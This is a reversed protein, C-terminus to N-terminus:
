SNKLSISELVNGVGQCEDLAREFIRLLKNSADDRAELVPDTTVNEERLAKRFGDIAGDQEAIDAELWAVWASPSLKEAPGQDLQSRTVSAVEVAWDQVNWILVAAAHSALQLVTRDAHRM